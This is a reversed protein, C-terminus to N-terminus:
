KRGQHRVRPSIVRAYPPVRKMLGAHRKDWDKIIEDTNRGPHQYELAKREIIKFMNLFTGRDEPSLPSLIEGILEWIRPSALEAISDGKSTVTVYVVRRDGKDRIRRVLGAKVMRDVLMSVSNPSRRLWDAMDTMNVRDGLYKVSVLVDYQESTIKYEKFLQDTCRRLLDSTQILFLWLKVTLDTPGLKATM